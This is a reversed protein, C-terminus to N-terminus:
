YISYLNKHIYGLFNYTCIHQKKENVIHKAINKAFADEGYDKIIRFLDRESYENVIEEATLTQRNDMRMDLKTDNKYSFGREVTDLQYSSVGLDLLIGVVKGIGLEQLVRRM